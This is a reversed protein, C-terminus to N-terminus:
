PFPFEDAWEGVVIPSEADIRLAGTPREALPTFLNNCAWRAPHTDTTLKHRGDEAELLLFM